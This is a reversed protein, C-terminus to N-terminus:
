FESQHLFYGLKLNGGAYEWEVKDLFCMLYSQSTKVFKGDRNFHFNNVVNYVDDDIKDIIHKFAGMDPDECFGGIEIRATIENTDMYMDDIIVDVSEINKSQKTTEIM